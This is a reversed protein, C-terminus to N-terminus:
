TSRTGSQQHILEHVHVYMNIFEHVHVHLNYVHEYMYTYTHVHVYGTWVAVYWKGFGTWPYLTGTSSQFKLSRFNSRQPGPARTKRTLMGSVTYLCSYRERLGNGLWIHVNWKASVLRLLAVNLNEIPKQVPNMPLTPLAYEVYITCLTCIIKCIKCIPWM